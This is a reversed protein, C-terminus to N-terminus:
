SIFALGIVLPVVIWALALLIIAYVAFNYSEDRPPDGAAGITEWLAALAQDTALRILRRSVAASYLAVWSLAFLVSVAIIGLAIVGLTHNLAKSAVSQIGSAVSTLAAGGLIFSPLGLSKSNM